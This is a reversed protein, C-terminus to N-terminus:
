WNDNHPKNSKQSSRDQSSREQSSRGQSSRDEQGRGGVKNAGGSSSFAKERTTTTTSTEEVKCTRLFKNLEDEAKERAYGYKAQLKGIFRDRKGQIQTIEDDTLKGFHEKLKGKIENWHGELIDKNM